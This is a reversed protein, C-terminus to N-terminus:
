KMFSDIKIKNLFFSFSSYERRDKEYDQKNCNEDDIRHIIQWLYRPRIVDSGVLCLNMLDITVIESNHIFQKIFINPNCFDKKAIERVYNYSNFLNYETLQEM